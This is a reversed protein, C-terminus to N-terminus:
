VGYAEMMESVWHSRRLYDPSPSARVKNALAAGSASFELLGDSISKVSDDQFFYGNQGNVILERCGRVPLCLVPLRRAIAEMISVSMGERSSPFLLADAADLWPLVDDQTHVWHIHPHENFLKWERASLGTPHLRDVEGIVVWRCGPHHAFAHLFARFAHAFGKFETLRGIYLFVTENQQWGQALRFSQRSEPSPLPTVLFRDSCGFGPSEQRFVAIAPDANNLAEADDDTLVWVRDMQRAAFVEAWRYLFSKSGQALPFQLGQFTSFWRISPHDSFRRVLAATLAAASFHAHVVDPSFDHLAARVERISKLHGWPNGGRPLRLNRCCPLENGSPIRTNGDGMWCLTLVEHGQSEMAVALDKLFVRYSDHLPVIQLLRM